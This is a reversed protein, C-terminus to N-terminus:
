EGEPKIGSRAAAHRAQLLREELSSRRVARQAIAPDVAPPGNDGTPQEPESAPESGPEAAADAQPVPGLGSGVKIDPVSRPNVPGSQLPSAPAEATANTDDIAPAPLEDACGRAEFLEETIVLAAMLLLREEGVNGFEGALREVHRGVYAALQRLRFEDADDCNLRYTRSNLTVAVHGM